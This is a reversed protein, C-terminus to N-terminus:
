MVYKEKFAVLAQQYESEYTQQLEKRRVANAQDISSPTEIEEEHLGKDNLDIGIGLFSLDKKTESYRKKRAAHGRYARQIHLAAQEVNLGGETEGLDDAQATQTKLDAMFKARIKGQRGRENAQVIRIAEQFTIEDGPRPENGFQFTKASNELLQTYSPKQTEKGARVFRPVPIEIDKPVLKLDLLVQEFNIYDADKTASM